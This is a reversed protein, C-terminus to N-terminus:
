KIHRALAPAEPMVVPRRLRGASVIKHPRARGLPTLRVNENIDM